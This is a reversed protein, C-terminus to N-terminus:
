PGPEATEQQLWTWVRRATPAARHRPDRIAQLRRTLVMDRVPLAHLSGARVEVDIALRSM